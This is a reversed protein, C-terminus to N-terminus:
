EAEANAESWNCDIGGAKFGDWVVCGVTDGSKTDVTIYEYTGETGGQKSSEEAAAGCGVLFVTSVLALGIIRRM